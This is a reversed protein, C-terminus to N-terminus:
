IVIEVCEGNRSIVEAFKWDSHTRKFSKAAKIISYIQEYTLTVGTKQVAKAAIFASLRNLILSTPIILRIHRENAGIISIKM